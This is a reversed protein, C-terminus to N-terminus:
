LNFLKAQHNVAIEYNMWICEQVKGHRINNAKVPFKVKRWDGYLREMTKGDYGSIMAKGKISHLLEALEEHDKITFEYKYDNKSNRVEDPYPPDNYFFAGDFDIAPILVRFDRNEIQINKLRDIIDWLKEVGNIWKIATEGRECRSQTKAMNWGKNQHNSGMSRFSQRIRVYFRRAWEIESCNEIDWSEDYEQRSVPTLRLLTILEEPRDRLVRFFNIIDSNIDNVTDIKSFPKNLSVSFSVAFVDIFHYHQEPFNEYINDLFANKGGFYSFAILRSSNGSM